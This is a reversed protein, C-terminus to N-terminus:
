EGPGSFSDASVSYGSWLQIRGIEHLIEDRLPYLREDVNLKQAIEADGYLGENIWPSHLPDEAHTAMVARAAAINDATKKADGLVGYAAARGLYADMCQPYVDGVKDFAAIAAAPQHSKLLCYGQILHIECRGSELRTRGLCEEAIKTVQQAQGKQLMGLLAYLDYQEEHLWQDSLLLTKNNEVGFWWLRPNTPVRYERAWPLFTHVYFARVNEINDCDLQFTRKLYEDKTLKGEAAGIKLQRYEEAAVTSCLCRVVYQWIEDFGMEKGADKGDPYTDRIRIFGRRIFGGSDNGVDVQTFGPLELLTSDWEFREGSSKGAFELAAWRYLVKAKDGYRAMFPRNKLM